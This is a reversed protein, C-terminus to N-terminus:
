YSVEGEAITATSDSDPSEWIVRVTDGSSILDGSSCGSEDQNEVIVWSDGASVTTGPSSTNGGNGICDSNSSTDVTGDTSLVDTGGVNIQIEKRTLQDGGDHTVKIGNEDTSGGTTDQYDQTSSFSLQAQPAQGSVSDGLGLVFSAIVAALIVTIAVMLIVGIVPSVARDETLFEKINM